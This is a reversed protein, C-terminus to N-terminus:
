NTFKFTSLIKEYEGQRTTEAPYKNILIRYGNNVICTFEGTGLGQWIITEYSVNGINVKKKSLIEAGGSSHDRWCSEVTMDREFKEPYFELKLEGNQLTTDKQNRTANLPSIIGMGSEAYEGPYNFMFLGENNYTKWGPILDTNVIPMQSPQVIPELSPTPETRLLTLEKVLNQTQYAFFGAVSVSLFLLTSLLIVLFNNQKPLEVLTQTEEAVPIQTPAINEM